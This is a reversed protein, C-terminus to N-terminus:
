NWTFSAVAESMRSLNEHTEKSYLQDLKTALEEADEWANVKVDKTYVRTYKSEMRKAANRVHFGAKELHEIFRLRSEPPSIPGVELAVKLKENYESFWLAVPYGGNWGPAKGKYPLWDQLAFWAVKSNSFVHVLEPHEQAFTSAASDLAYHRSNDVQILADMATRHEILIKRCLQEIKEDMGLLRRMAELYHTIFSSVDAPIEATHSQIERSIVGVVDRHSLGLYRADHEPDHGDMTLLIPLIRYQSFERDVAAFYKTLQGMTESARVKNEIIVVTNSRNSVALVDIRNWERLVEADTFDAFYTNELTFEEPTADNYVVVHAAIGRLIADGLGHVEHPNLLWALVNSHRIEANEISLVQFPNFGGLASQLERFETSNLFDFLDQISASATEM